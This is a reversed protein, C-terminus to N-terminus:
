SRYNLQVFWRCRSLSCVAPRLGPVDNVSRRIALCTLFNVVEPHFFTRQNLGDRQDGERRADISLAACRPRRACQDM